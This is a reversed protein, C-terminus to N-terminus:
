AERFAKPVDAPTEGHDGDDDDPWVIEFGCSGHEPCSQTSPRVIADPYGNSEVAELLDRLLGATVGGSVLVQIPERDDPHSEATLAATIASLAAKWNKFSM